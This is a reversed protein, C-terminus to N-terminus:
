QTTRSVSGASNEQGNVIAVALISPNVIVIYSMTLFTTIGAVLETRLDTGLEDFEFYEALQQQLGMGGCKHM